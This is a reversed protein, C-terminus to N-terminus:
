GALAEQWGFGLPFVRRLVSKWRFVFVLVLVLVFFCDLGCDVQKAFGVFRVDHRDGFNMLGEADATVAEAMGAARDPM